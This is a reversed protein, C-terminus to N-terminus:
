FRIPRSVVNSKMDPRVAQFWVLPINTNPVPLTFSAEGRSDTRRTPGAQQPQALDITVGWGNPRVRGPGRVSYALGFPM